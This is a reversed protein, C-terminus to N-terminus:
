DHPTTQPTDVATLTVDVPAPPLENQLRQEIVDVYPKSLADWDIVITAGGAQPKDDKLLGLLKCRLERIRTIESMYRVDGILKRTRTQSTDEVPELDESVVKKAKGKGETKTRLERRVTHTEVAEVECSRRWAEWLEELQLDLAALERERKEDFSAVAEELWWGRILKLDECVTKQTVGVRDAIKQQSLGQLYLRSVERRRNLTNYEDNKRNKERGVAVSGM